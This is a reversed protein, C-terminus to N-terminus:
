VEEEQIGSNTDRLDLEQEFSLLADDQATVLGSEYKDERFLRMRYHGSDEGADYCEYITM